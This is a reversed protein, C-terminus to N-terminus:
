ADGPTTLFEDRHHEVWQRYTFAPRGTIEAVTPLVEAPHEAQRALMALLSEVIQSPRDAMARRYEDTSQEEFRIDRGLVEALIKVREAQSLSEPGTLVYDQGAHDEGILAAVAVAAIDREDIPASNAGGYPGRVVSEAVIQRAWRLDNTMFAGPRVFTWPVTGAAVAQESESHAQGIPNLPKMTVSSSSLLVIRELGGRSALDVFSRLQGHVPFLFAREVGELAAPLSDPRSLDGAVVEVGDPFRARSPDRTMARVDQGHALLQEVVNHGVNGTAGTVLIM